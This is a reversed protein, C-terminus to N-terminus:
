QGPTALAITRPEPLPCIAVHYTCHPLMSQEAELTDNAIGACAMCQQIRLGKFFDFLMHGDYVYNHTWSDVGAMADALELHLKELKNERM